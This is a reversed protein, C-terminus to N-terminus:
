EKGSRKVVTKRIRRMVIIVLTAIVPISIAKILSTELTEYVAQMGESAFGVLGVLYYTVAVISVAEVAEQLRLQFGARRDMSELVSQNQERREMDVRTSLLQTAREVGQTLSQQRVAVAQCTDMAPALRRETFERFTQLGQIRKERLDTIRRQVLMYYANAAGFRYNSSSYRSEIDAQLCTLRNLLSLEDADEPGALATTIQVLEQESRALFPSLERAMPLALLAMMRYSDIELLRQINRGTQRPTMQRNAVLLRSFGDAQIRFDTMAIGAGDAIHAGILANGNFMEHSIQEHDPIDQKADMLTIHSALLAEGPLAALWEAPLQKVVPNAFPNDTMGSVFFTYGIFETHREWKLRLSGLDVLYHNDGAKPPAVNFLSTLDNIAQQEAEITDASSYCLIYSARMPAHMAVSPRAHVEDNLGHRHCHDRPFTVSDSKM